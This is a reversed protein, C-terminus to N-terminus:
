RNLSARSVNQLRAYENVPMNRGKCQKVENPQGIIYKQKSFVMKALVTIRFELM